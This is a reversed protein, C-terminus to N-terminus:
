GFTFAYGSVGPAFHLTLRHRAVAPLDVLRYLRQFGVELLGGRVDSGARSDALPRGDLLVRVARPHEPSGLVLFVRRASFDISLTANTVARASQATIQWVGSYALHDPPLPGVARYAHRGPAIQGNLFREANRAGLYSERTIQADSPKDARVRTSAGLRSAGAEALLARIVGEKRDYEGEGFHAYRVQGHADIFYEAPWYQNAYSNWIAYDNDQVVPYRLHNQGIADSVNGASKEFPFEPTHVGVITLGSARYRADWARLYPLTRLCNICSYTWFDVLVVHGRLSGLSLPRGGPTNFWRQYGHFDPAAGLVALATASPNQSARAGSRQQSARPALPSRRRGRLAALERQARASRELGETPNVLVSPLHDAIATEFRTDLHLLMAVAVTAMVAGAAMQLAGGRRALRSTVRRGGIMLLYLVAASGVGYALAVTLRAATFSQSASVTIVTALIPGACPAYVLGLGGGVILGSGFGDGRRPAMAPALRGLYSEIRASVPPVLLSAGFVILVVIAITRLLGSPLGLVSIVYVLAVTAFTFSLALGTVVGLPRRRGGTVGASLAVPLVPLVCPSVATAAGAILAFLTLLAM